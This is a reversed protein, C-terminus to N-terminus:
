IKILSIYSNGMLKEVLGKMQMNLLIINLESPKFNTYDLIEQYSKKETLIYNLITQENIDLQISPKKDNKKKSVGLFDLIENPSCVLSAQCQKIISNTGESEPSNIKGPVAFVERGYEIAYNKTHLAGSKAGAETILVAKSLGAIIRNRIPFLYSTPVINPKSESVVLNDEIMRRYLGQNSAPFVHDFGGAIVAITKGSEELATEHAVTDVGSALGSVITIGADSLEKAFLKTVVKGYDTIKRTGVIACCTTDLLQLNGKCYLCLPPTDIEKLCSPYKDSLLTLITINKREYYEVLDFFEADDLHCSINDYETKTIITSLQYKKSQWNLRIDESIDFLSMIKAKKQYSLFEFNDIWILNKEEISYM